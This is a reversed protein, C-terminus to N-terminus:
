LVFRGSFIYSKGTEPVNYVNAKLTTNTFYDKEMCSNGNFHIFRMCWTSKQAAHTVTYCIFFKSLKQYSCNHLPHNRNELLLDNEHFSM